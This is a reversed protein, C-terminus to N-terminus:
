VATEDESEGEARHVDGAGPRDEGGDGDRARRPLDAELGDGQGHGEGDAGRDRQQSERERPLPDRLAYPGEAVTLLPEPDGGTHDDDREGDSEREIHAVCQLARDGVVGGRQVVREVLRVVATEGAGRVPPLAASPAQWCCGATSRSSQPLAGAIEPIWCHSFVGSSAGTLLADSVPFTTSTSKQAYEQMLQWRAIVCTAAHFEAYM